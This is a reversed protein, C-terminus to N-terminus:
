RLLTSADIIVWIDNSKFWLSSDVTVFYDGNNYSADETPIQTVNTHLKNTLIKNTYEM